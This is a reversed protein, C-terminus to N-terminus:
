RPLAGARRPDEGARAASQRVARLIGTIAHSSLRTILELASPSRTRWGSPRRRWSSSWASGRRPRQRPPGGRATRAVHVRLAVQRHRLPDVGVRELLRHVVHQHMVDRDALHDALALDVDGAGRDVEGAGLDRHRRLDAALARQLLRELRDVLVVVEDEDVRRRAEPQQRDVRQRGRVLHDDGHLALIQRHAPRIWSWFVSEIIRSFRLGSTSISPMRGVSKSVRVSCALSAISIRSSFKPSRTNADRIRLVTRKASAGTFPMDTSFYSGVAHRGVGIPCSAFSTRQLHWATLARAHALARERGEEALGRLVVPARPRSGADPRPGGLARCGRSASRAAARRPAAGCGAGAGASPRRASSRRGRRRLLAQAVGEGGVDRLVSSRSRRRSGSGRGRRTRRARVAIWGRRAGPRDARHQADDADAAGADVGDVAHDLGLDRADLEDRDVGVQLRQLLRGGVLRQVDAVDIVRPGPSRSPGRGRGGPRSALLVVADLRHELPESMIKMAAPAPPPVPVPAAGTTARIARSTPASVTPITVRGNPKSPERRRAGPRPRRDCASASSTSVSITTGFLRSSVTSSM